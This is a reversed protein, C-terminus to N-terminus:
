AWSLRRPNGFYFLISRLGQDNHGSFLLTTPRWCFLARTHTHTHTTKTLESKQGESHLWNNMLDHDGLTEATLASRQNKKKKLEQPFYSVSFCTVAFSIVDVSSFPPIMVRLLRFDTCRIPFYVSM